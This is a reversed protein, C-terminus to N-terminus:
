KSSNRIIGSDLSFIEVDRLRNNNCTTNPRQIRSQDGGAIIIENTAAIYDCSHGFRCLTMNPGPTYVGTTLDLFYTDCYNQLVPGRGGAFFVTTDNIIAVCPHDIGAWVRPDGYPLEPMAVFNLGNDTSRGVHKTWPQRSGALILGAGDTYDWARNFRHFFCYKGHYTPVPWIM